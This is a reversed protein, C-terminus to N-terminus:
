IFFPIPAGLMHGMSIYLLPVLLCVSVILRVLTFKGSKKNEQPKQGEAFIGYGLSKVTDTIVDDSVLSEDFEVRMSKAMLSVECVSVGELRSVSKEIGSSCASCTMGTIDYKKIM